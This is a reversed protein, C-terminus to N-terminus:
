KVVRTRYLFFAIVTIIIGVIILYIYISRSPEEVPITTTTSIITTTVICDSDTEPTCDPDCKGDKIGDCYGDSSGSPCDKPCNGYNEGIVCVGDGCMGEVFNLEMFKTVEIETGNTLVCVTCEDSFNCIKMNTIHRAEYGNKTCYSWKLAEKGLLFNWSDASTNDPFVCTGVEGEPIKVIKFEYGLSTCYVASPDKYSYVSHLSLFFTFTGILIMFFLFNKLYFLKQMIYVKNKYFNSYDSNREIKKKM